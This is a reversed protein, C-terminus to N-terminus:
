YRANPFTPAWTDNVLMTNWDVHDPHCHPCLVIDFLEPAFGADELDKLFNTQLMRWDAFM